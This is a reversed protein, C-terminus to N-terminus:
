LYEGLGVCIKSALEEVLVRNDYTGGVLKLLSTAAFGKGLSCPDLNTNLGVGVILKDSCEEVLIGCIKLGNVLVDNPAKICAPVGYSRRLWGAIIEAVVLSTHSILEPSAVEPRRLLISFLAGGGRPCCWRKEGRGRGATQWDASVVTGPKLERCFNRLYSNTSDVVSLHIFELAEIM